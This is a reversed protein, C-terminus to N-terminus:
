LTEPFITGQSFTPTMGKGTSLVNPHYYIDEPLMLTHSEESLAKTQGGTNSHRRDAKTLHRSDRRTRVPPYTFNWSLHCCVPRPLRAGAAVHCSPWLGMAAQAWTTLAAKNKGEKTYLVLFTKQSKLFNIKKHLLQLFM